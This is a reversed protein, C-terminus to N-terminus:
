TLLPETIYNLWESLWVTSPAELEENSSASCLYHRSAEAMKRMQQVSDVLSGFSIQASAPLM